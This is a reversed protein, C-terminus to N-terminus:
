TALTQPFFSSRCPQKAVSFNVVTERCVIEGAKTDRDAQAESHSSLVELINKTQTFNSIEFIEFIESILEESGSAAAVKDRLNSSV